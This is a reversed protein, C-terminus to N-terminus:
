QETVYNRVEVADTPKLKGAQVLRIERRRAAGAFLNQEERTLPLVAPVNRPKRTTEDLAVFTFYAHNCRRPNGGTITAAFVECFVEVSTNFARVVSAEITVVDGLRIPEDFSVHDISATVVPAQCHRGACVACAVDMWRLLNGGMLNHMPNTDNPMVLETMTTRSEAVRKPDPINKDSM